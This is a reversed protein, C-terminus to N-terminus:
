TWFNIGAAVTAIGSVKVWQVPGPLSHTGGCCDAATTPNKVCQWLPFKM